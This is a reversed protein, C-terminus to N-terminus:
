FFSFTKAGRHGEMPYLSFLSIIHLITYRLM